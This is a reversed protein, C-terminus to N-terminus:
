LYRGVAVPGDGSVIIGTRSWRLQSFVLLLESIPTMMPQSAPSCIPCRCEQFIISGDSSGQMIRREKYEQAYGKGCLRGCIILDVDVVFVVHLRAQVSVHFLWVLLSCCTQLFAISGASLTLGFSTVQWLVSSNGWDLILGLSWSESEEIRRKAVKEWCLLM